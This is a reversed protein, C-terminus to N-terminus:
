FDSILVAETTFNGRSLVIQGSGPAAAFNYIRGNELNLLQRPPGGEIPQEYLSPSENQIFIFSKSDAKWVTLGRFARIDFSRIMEGNEATMIGIKWPQPATQDYFQFSILRGDPSIVPAWGEKSVLLAEGGEFPIKWISAAGGDGTSYYIWRGDPSVSPYNEGLKGFTLQKLRGDSFSLRWINSLGNQSSAFVLYNGDASLSPRGNWSATNNILLRPNGGNGDLQWLDVKGSRLSTFIIAGSPMAALGSTGDSSLNGFTLQRASQFQDASMTWINFNALIQQAVLLRGSYAPSLWDYSNTDNTIRRSSEGDPYSIRWIQFPSGSSERVTVLLAKGGDTFALDSAERWEPIPISRETGSEVSLEILEARRRDSEIREGGILIFKGDPSWAPQADWDAYFREKGDRRILVREGNGDTGAIIITQDRVFAILKGGPAVAPPSIVNRAIEQPPIGGAASIREVVHNPVGERVTL